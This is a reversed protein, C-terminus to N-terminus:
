GHTHIVTCDKGLFKALANLWTYGDYIVGNPNNFKIGASQMAHYIAEDKSWYSGKASGTCGQASQIDNGWFCAYTMSKTTYYRAEAIVKGTQKEVLIYAGAFSAEKRHATNLNSVPSLASITM